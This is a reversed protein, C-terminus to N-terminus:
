RFRTYAGLGRNVMADSGAGLGTAILINRVTPAAEQAALAVAIGAMVSVIVSKGFKRRNFKEKSDLYGLSASLLGGAFAALAILIM